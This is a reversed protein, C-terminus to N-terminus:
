NARCGVPPRGGGAVASAGDCLGSARRASAGASGAGASRRRDPPDQSAPIPALDYDLSPDVIHSEIGEQQLARHIWFGDLGAEQIVIIPVNKGWAGSPEKLAGFWGLLGAVDGGPV